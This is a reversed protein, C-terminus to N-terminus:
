QFYLEKVAIMIEDVSQFRESLNASLGKNVFSSLNTDKINGIRTKGSMVFYIIRTIAFTEHLIGYNCFGETLLRPDNFYGKFETNITTLNSDPVKVLGFDSVKIVSVDDYKKLLINKPSIDRHLLGKSHIYRFARLIQNAILKRDNQTLKSNNKEIYKYLTCDMFEMIYENTDNEYKYVEVVYPSSLSNMQEFEQKFRTVEKENLDKKARKLVFKRNYYDDFFSFVQAYSGEGILRLEINKGSHGSNIKITNAPIIIPMIYYIEIKEMNPPMQSGGSSSLFERSKKFVENYYDVIEFAYESDKLTRQMDLATDIALILKRSPDAWFHDGYEGTPLRQNMLKYNEVCLHHITAFIEQLKQSKFCKYLDIFEINLYPYIERYQSEIYNELNM